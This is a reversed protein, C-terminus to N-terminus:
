LKKRVAKVIRLTAILGLFAVPAAIYWPQGLMGPPPPQQSGPAIGQYLDAESIRKGALVHLRRPARCAARRAAVAPRPTPLPGGRRAPLAPSAAM